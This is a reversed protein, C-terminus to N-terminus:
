ILDSIKTLIKIRLAFVSSLNYSVLGGIFETQDQMEMGYAAIEDEEEFGFDDHDNVVQEESEAQQIIEDDSEVQPRTRAYGKRRWSRIPAKSHVVQTANDEDDSAGRSDNHFNSTAAPISRHQLKSTFIKEKEDESSQENLIVIDNETNSDPSILEEESLGYGIKKKRISSHITSRKEMRPEFLRPVSHVATATSQSTTIVQSTTPRSYTTTIHVRVSIPYNQELSEFFNTDRENM